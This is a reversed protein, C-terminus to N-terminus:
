RAARVPPTPVPSTEGFYDWLARFLADALRQREAAKSLLGADKKNSLNVMEVLVAAPVQNSRIVAPVWERRGRIVRDRIPKNPQIPLKERRFSEVIKAALERSVAESRVRTKYSFSVRPKERVEEFQRYFKTNNGYTGTRLRHGPVYVMLGRLSPHRADAHISMFVVRDPGTGNGVAERYVSNALYWRLNVGVRADGNAKAIFPPNTKITGERNAELRDRKSPACGTEKDELTMVVRASTRSDLLRFLRCTVDYVYDHEWVGNNQTGLDRGGHGPDLIVVVGELGGGTKAVPQKELSAAMRARAAEAERRRPHSAPLHEPELVDFPIKVLYDVPIDTLDAIGSRVALEAALANVDDADTRGTYRVVVASYLAEGRKLRYGAYSGRADEAYELTGDDSAPRRGFVPLLLRGPIRVEQGSALEPSDLGNVELLESFRSGDGTYWEAVQWLGEDYTAILGGRATHIWDDGELHDKPFLRRLVLARYNEALMYFPIRVWREPDIGAFDNYKSIVPGGTTAGCMRGAVEVYSDGPEPLVELEIQRGQVVRIRLGDSLPLTEGATASPADLAKAAPMAWIGAAAALLLAVLRM